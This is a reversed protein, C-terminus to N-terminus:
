KLFSWVLSLRRLCGTSALGPESSMNELKMSLDPVIMRDSASPEVLSQGKAEGIQKKKSIEVTGGKVRSRVPSSYFAPAAWEPKTM